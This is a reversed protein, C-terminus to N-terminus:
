GRLRHSFPRSLLRRDGVTLREGAGIFTLFPTVAFYSPCGGDCSVFCHFHKGGHHRSYHMTNILLM